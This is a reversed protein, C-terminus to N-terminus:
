PAGGAAEDAQRLADLEALAEARGPQGEPPLTQAIAHASFFRSFRRQMTAQLRTAVLAKGLQERPTLAAPGDPAAAYWHEYPSRSEEPVLALAGELHTVASAFHDAALGLAPGLAKARSPDDRFPAWDVGQYPKPPEGGALSAAQLAELTLPSTRVVGAWGPRLHHWYWTHRSQIEQAAEIERWAALVKLGAPEGYLDRALQATFEDAAEPETLEPSFFLRRLAIANAPVFEGLTGWQDFVGDAGLEQWRSLKAAIGLPFDYLETAPFVTDDGWLFIDYGLFPQGHARTVQRYEMLADTLKRDFSWAEGDPPASLGAGPPLAAQQTLYHPDSRFTWSWALSYVQFEPRVKRAEDLLLALLRNYQTLKSVGRHRPCTAPDCLEGNSDLTFVIFMDLEPFDQVLRRTMDRYAQEVLPHALCLTRGQYTGTDSLREAPFRKLFDQRAAEPVWPGGQCVVECLWLAGGLGYRKCWDLSRRLAARNAALADPDTADPFQPCPTFSFLTKERMWDHTLHAVNGGCRAIFEIDAQRYGAPGGQRRPHLLRLGLPPDGRESFGRPVGGELALLDELRYTAYLAARPNAGVVALAGGSEAIAYADRDASPAVQAGCDALWGSLHPLTDPTGIVVAGPPPASQTRTPSDTTIRHGGLRAQLFGRLDDAATKLPVHGTDAEIIRIQDPAIMEREGRVPPFPRPGPLPRRGVVQLAVDDFCVAHRGTASTSGRLQVEGSGSPPVDVTLEAEYRVWEGKTDRLPDLTYQRWEAPVATNVQVLADGLSADSRYFFSLRLRDWRQVSAFLDARAHVWRAYVDQPGCELGGCWAGLHPQEPSREFLAEGANQTGRWGSPAAGEGEEFGPNRVLNDQATAACIALLLFAAPLATLTLLRLCM